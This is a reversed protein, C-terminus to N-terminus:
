ERSVSAVLTRVLAARRSFGRFHQSEYLRVAPLNREDVACAMSWATQIAACSGIGHRLLRLGLGKGRLAPSLGLYVLEFSRQDPCPSFLACGHPAGRLTIIWWLSPDFIGTSKHSLLIDSTTRLGCLEPCDLTDVYSADMAQVLLTEPNMGLAECQRYSLVGVGDPWTLQSIDAGLWLKTDGSRPARRMYLLNGVSAFNADRFADIAWREDVGPLSQALVVRDNLEKSAAACLSTLGAAREARALRAGGPEGTRFPESLFVMGTRGAGPVMLCAQRVRLTNGLGSRDVTCWSWRFDIGHQPGNAILREAAEDLNASAQSVIRRAIDHQLDQTGRLVAIDPPLPTHADDAADFPGPHRTPLPDLV